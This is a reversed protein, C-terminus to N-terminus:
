RSSKGSCLKRWPILVDAPLGERETLAAMRSLDPHRQSDEWPCRYASFLARTALPLGSMTSALCFSPPQKSTACTFRDVVNVGHDHTEGYTVGGGAMWYTFCGPHHDSALKM